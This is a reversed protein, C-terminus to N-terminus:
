TGAVQGDLAVADTQGAPLALHAAAPSFCCFHLLLLLLLLLRPLKIHLMAPAVQKGILPSPGAAAAAAAM